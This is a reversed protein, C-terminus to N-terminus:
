ILHASVVLLRGVREERQRAALGRWWGPPCGAVMRTPFPGAVMGTPDVGDAGRAPFRLYPSCGFVVKPKRGKPNEASKAENAAIQNSLAELGMLERINAISLPQCHQNLKNNLDIMDMLKINALDMKVAALSINAM